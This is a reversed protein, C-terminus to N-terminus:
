KDNLYLYGAKKTRIGGTEDLFNINYFYTGTPLKENQNLTVRGESVGKFVNGFTNYSSTEYVKVGWRNYIQVTNKPCNEIGDINFFDNIGDNNPSVANYIVVGRGGCPLIENSKVRALTFVGYGLLPNVITTVEKTISNVVGGEDVWLNQTTDWRVIHIDDLPERYIAMPTTQNDWTLTLFVDSNGATKDITWYEADDILSIIGARNTHPYLLNSNELFYKGTFADTLNNPASISAYRYKGADGIPYLFNSNGNKQVYGDVHSDNDTNFHTGTNEFIVLGGFADDNVIGMNFDAIGAISIISYLEFLPQTSTNKFLVNNLESIMSGTIKQSSSSGEFRTIGNFASDFTFLGDNNFNEYLFFEGDNFVNGSFTNNFDYLSSIQTNPLITLEGINVTQATTKSLTFLMVFFTLGLIIKKKKMLQHYKNKFM